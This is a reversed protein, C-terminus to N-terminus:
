RHGDLRWFGSIRDPLDRDGPNRYAEVTIRNSRHLRVISGSIELDILGGVLPMLRHFVNQDAGFTGIAVGVRAQSRQTEALEASGAVAAPVSWVM